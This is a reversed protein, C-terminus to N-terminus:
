KGMGGYNGGGGYQGGYMGQMGSNGRTPSGGYADSSGNDREAKAIAATVWSIAELLQTCFGLVMPMIGFLLVVLNTSHKKNNNREKRNDARESYEAQNISEQKRWIEMAADRLKQAKGMAEARTRLLADAVQTKQELYKGQLFGRARKAPIGAIAAAQLYATEARMSDAKYQGDDFTSPKYSTNNNTAADDYLTGTLTGGLYSTFASLSFFALFLIGRLVANAIHIGTFEYRGSALMVVDKTFLDGIPIIGKFDIMHAVKFAALICIALMAYWAWDGLWSQAILLIGTGIAGSVLSVTSSLTSAWFGAKKLTEINDNVAKLNAAPVNYSLKTM